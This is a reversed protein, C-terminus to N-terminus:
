LAGLAFLPVIRGVFVFTEMRLTNLPLLEALKAFLTSRMFFRLLANACFPNV